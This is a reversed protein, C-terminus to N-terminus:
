LGVMRKSSSVQMLMTTLLFGQLYGDEWKIPGRVNVSVLIMGIQLLANSFNRFRNPFLGSVLAGEAVATGDETLM